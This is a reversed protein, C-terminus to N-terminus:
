WEPDEAASPRYWSADHTRVISPGIESLHEFSHVQLASRSGRRLGRRRAPTRVGRAGMRVRVVACGQSGLYGEGGLLINGMLVEVSSRGMARTHLRQGTERRGRDYARRCGCAASGSMGDIV